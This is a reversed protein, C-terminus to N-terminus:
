GRHRARRAGGALRGPLDAARSLEAGGPAPEFREKWVPRAPGPGPDGRDEDDREHGGEQRRDKQRRENRFPSSRDPFSSTPIASRGATRKTSGPGSSEEATVRAHPASRGCLSAAGFWTTRRRAPATAATARRSPTARRSASKSPRGSRSSPTERRM